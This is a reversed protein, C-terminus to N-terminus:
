SHSSEITGEGVEDVTLFLHAVVVVKYLLKTDVFSNIDVKDHSWADGRQKFHEVRAFHVKGSVFDWYYGGVAVPHNGATNFVYRM